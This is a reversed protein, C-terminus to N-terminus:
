SETNGDNTHEYFEEEYEKETLDRYSDYKAIGHVHKLNTKEVPTGYWGGHTCEYEGGVVAAFFTKNGNETEYVRYPKTV